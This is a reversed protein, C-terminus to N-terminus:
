IKRIKAELIVSKGKPHFDQISFTLESNKPINLTILEKYVLSKKTNIYKYYGIDKIDSLTYGQKKYIYEDDLNYYCISHLLDKNSVSDNSALTLELAIISDRKNDAIFRIPQYKELSDRKIPPYSLSVPLINVNITNNLIKKRYSELLELKELLYLQAESIYHYPQMGWKHNYDAILLSEPYEIIKVNNQKEVYEYLKNLWKNNEHIWNEYKNSVVTGNKNNKNTWFVKNIIIKDLLNNNKVIEIFKNWGNTWLEFFVDSNSLIKEGEKNYLCNDVLEPSLTFIENNNTRFLNFREDIFDILIWDPNSSILINETTKSLDNNVMKRQFTSNINSTDINNVKKNQFASAFSTRALYTIDYNETSLEFPDRTVCSGLIFIKKM